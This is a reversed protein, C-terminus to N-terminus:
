NIACINKLGEAIDRKDQVRSEGNGNLNRKLVM